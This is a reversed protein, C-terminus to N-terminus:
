KKLRRLFKYAQKLINPNYGAKNLIFWVAPIKFEERLLEVLQIRKAATKRSDMVFLNVDALSMLMIGISEQVIAQNHILCVDFDHMMTDIMNVMQWQSYKTYSNDSLNFFTVNEFGSENIQLTGTADILLVKRGQSALAKTLHVSHFSHHSEDDYSTMVLKYKNKLIGKLELQVVEKLFHKTTETRNEFFPTNLAIPINSFKELTYADNVKAKAFHILYILTISAIMGLIGSFILIISKIPSVPINSIEGKSIVRHFAIRASQVIEAEIKKENLFNYSKQLLEFDRNMVNLLREKQPLNAFVSESTNIDQNLEELKIKLNDRTNHISETLYSTLDKIKEDIVAVKEDNKTFTLLLDKKEAQLRKISKVMETSLLDTFAEFNPALALFDNKGSDIYKCLNELAELNMKLNTKQIKLQSIKRLDTETEQRLNIINETNRYDEIGMESTSLKGSIEKIRDDLFSVTTSAAKYKSEIYDLIYTEALTNVFIAAKESVESRLNIRIIPVDKDVPMIELNKNIKDILQNNSLISVEYNDMLNMNPKERLLSDNLMLLLKGYCFELPKGFRGEISKGTGPEQLLYGKESLVRIIMKSDYAKNNSFIGKVSFPSDRYLEVNRVDGIRYIEINFDLKSIVNELLNSSKLVEIETAIKNSNAFVDLNKFLNSSPVGEGIDALKLKATSEYFLLCFRQM